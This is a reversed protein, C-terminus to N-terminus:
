LHVILGDDFELLNHARNSTLTVDSRRSGEYPNM